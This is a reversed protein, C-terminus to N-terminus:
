TKHYQKKRNKSHELNKRNAPLYGKGNRKKDKIRIVFDKIAM